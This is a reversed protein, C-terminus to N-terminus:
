GQCILITVSLLGVGQLLFRRARIHSFKFKRLRFSSPESYRIGAVTALENVWGFVLRFM